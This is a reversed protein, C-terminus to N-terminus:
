ICFQFFFLIILLCTGCRPIPHNWTGDSQCTLVNNTGIFKFGSLCLVIVLSGAPNGDYTKHVDANAVTIDPCVVALLINM